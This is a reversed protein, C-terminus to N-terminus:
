KGVGMNESSRDKTIELSILALFITELSKNIKNSIYLSFTIYSLRYKNSM